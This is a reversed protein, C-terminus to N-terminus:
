YIFLYIYLCIYIEIGQIKYTQTHETMYSEKCGGHVTTWWVGRDIPNELCSYHLPNGNGQLFPNYINFVLYVSFVLYNKVIIYIYTVFIYIICRFRVIYIYIYIYIEGAYKSKYTESQCEKRVLFSTQSLAPQPYAIIYLSGCFSSWYFYSFVRHVLYLSM